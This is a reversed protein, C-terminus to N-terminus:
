RIELGLFPVPKLEDVRRDEEGGRPPEELILRQALNFESQEEGRSGASHHGARAPNSLQAGCQATAALAATSSLDVQIHLDTAGNVEQQGVAPALLNVQSGGLLLRQPGHGPLELLSIVGLFCSRSPVKNTSLIATATAM